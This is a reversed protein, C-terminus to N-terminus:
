RGEIWEQTSYQDTLAQVEEDDIDPWPSAQAEGGLARGLREAFLQGFNEWDIERGAAPRWISGQLLLGHKSRKQAAGAVKRGDAMVVDHVEAREFCVGPLKEDEAKSEAQLAANVGLANLAQALCEHVTRYSERARVQELPHARPIVLAYTWDERHDVIGGGTPRRCLDWREGQPLQSRVFAIKQSYGFTFAPSRWEYHRFRAADPAGAPWRQLLLFDRAMNEAASGTRAPLVLLGGAKV